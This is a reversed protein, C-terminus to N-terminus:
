IPSLWAPCRINLASQFLHRCGALYNIADQGDPVHTLSNSVGAKKLAMRFIFADNEDDEALLILGRDNM